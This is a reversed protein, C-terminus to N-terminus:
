EKEVRGEKIKRSQRTENRKPLSPIKGTQWVRCALIFNIKQWICLLSVGPNSM